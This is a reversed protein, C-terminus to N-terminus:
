WGVMEDVATGKEEQRLDKGADPDKRILQSKADFPWNYEILFTTRSNVGSVERNYTEGQISCAVKMFVFFLM